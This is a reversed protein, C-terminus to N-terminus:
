PVRPTALPQKELREGSKQPSLDSRMALHTGPSPCPLARGCLPYGDSERSSQAGILRIRLDRKPFVQAITLDVAVLKRPLDRDSVVDAIEGAALLSEDDPDIATLM